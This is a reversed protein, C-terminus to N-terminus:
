TGVKSQGPVTHQPPASIDPCKCETTLCTATSLPNEVQVTASATRRVATVLKITSLVGPSTAEFTVLYFLYEGSVVNRFTVQPSLNLPSTFVVSQFIDLDPCLFSHTISGQHPVAGRQIYLFVDQLREQGFCPCWYIRSGRPVGYCRAQRTEPDRDACPVQACLCVWSEVPCSNQCLVNWWEHEANLYDKQWM